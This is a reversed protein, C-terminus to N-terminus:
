ALDSDLLRREVEDCRVRELPESPYSINSNLFSGPRRNDTAEACTRSSFPRKLRELFALGIAVLFRDIDILEATEALAVLCARSPFPLNVFAAFSSDGGIRGGLFILKVVM